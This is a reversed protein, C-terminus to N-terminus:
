ASICLTFQIVEEVFIEPKTEEEAMTSIVMLWWWWRDRLRLPQQPVVSSKVVGGNKETRWQRRPSLSSWAQGNGWKTKRGKGGDAKKGMESYRALHNQGSKIFPLCIWVVATQMEKRDDPSRWTTWNGAPDQCLSGWQYCPWYIWTDMSVPEGLVAWLLTQIHVQKEEQQATGAVANRTWTHENTASQVSALYPKASPGTLMNCQVTTWRNM